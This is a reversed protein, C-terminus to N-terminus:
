KQEKLVDELLVPPAECVAGLGIHDYGGLYGHQKCIADLRKADTAVGALGFLVVVVVLFIVVALVWESRTMM